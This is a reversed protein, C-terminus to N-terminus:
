RTLSPIPNSFLGMCGPDHTHWSIGGDAMAESMAQTLGTRDALESLLAIDAHSVLSKGDSIVEPRHVLSSRHVKLSGEEQTFM